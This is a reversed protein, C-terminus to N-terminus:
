WSTIGMRNLNGKAQVNGQKASLKFWKIAEDRSQTVGQGNYYCLALNFQATADGKEAAKRYWKVAEYANQTVGQGNKYCLGLNCQAKIHGQNAAIRFWKAAEYYDQRVGRGKYYCLGLQYQAKTSGKEAARGYQKYAETNVDKQPVQATKSTTSREFKLQGQTSAFTTTPCMACAALAAIIINYFRM